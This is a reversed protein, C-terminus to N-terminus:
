VHRELSSSVSNISQSINKIGQASCYVACTRKMATLGNKSRLSTTKWSDWTGDLVLLALKEMMEVNQCSVNCDFKMSFKLGDSM